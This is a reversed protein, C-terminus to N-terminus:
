IIPMSRVSSFFSAQDCTAIFFAERLALSKKNRCYLCRVRRPPTLSLALAASVALTQGLCADATGRPLTADGQAQM